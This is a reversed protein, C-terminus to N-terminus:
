HLPLCQFFCLQWGSTERPLINAAPSTRVPLTGSSSSISFHGSVLFWWLACVFFPIDLYPAKGQLLPDSQVAEPHTWHFLDHLNVLLPVAVLPVFPTIAAIFETVRRMPVSWVAGGIHEVAILFLSGGGISALFLFLVINNFASRKADIGYAAAMVVIGLALLIWALRRVSVPLEKKLPQITTTEPGSM